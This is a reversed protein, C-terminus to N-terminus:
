VLEFGKITIERIPLFVYFPGSIFESDDDFTPEFGHDDGNPEPGLYQDFSDIGPASDYEYGFLKGDHKRRIVRLMKVGQYFDTSRLYDAKDIEFLAEFEDRVESCPLFGSIVAEADEGELVVRDSDNIISSPDSDGNLSM